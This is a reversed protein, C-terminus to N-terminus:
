LLYYNYDTIIFVHTLYVVQDDQIQPLRLLFLDYDKHKFFISPHIYNKMDILQFSNIKNRVM